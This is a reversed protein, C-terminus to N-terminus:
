LVCRTPRQEVECLDCSTEDKKDELKTARKGEIISAVLDVIVEQTPFDLDEFYIARKEGM